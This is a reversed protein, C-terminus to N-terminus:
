ELPLWSHGHWVGLGVDFGADQGDDGLGLVQGDFSDRGGGGEVFNSISERSLILRVKSTSSSKSMTMGSSEREERRVTWSTMVPTWVRRAALSCM